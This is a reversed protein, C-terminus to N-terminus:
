ASAGGTGMMLDILDAFGSVLTPVDGLVGRLLEPGLVLAVFVLRGHRASVRSSLRAVGGFAIGFLLSYAVVAGGVAVAAISSSSARGLVGAFVALVLAPLGVARAVLITTAVVRATAFARPSAGRLAAL